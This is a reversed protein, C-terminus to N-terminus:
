ASRSLFDRLSSVILDPEDELLWHGAEPLALVQSRPLRKKLRYLFEPTFVFDKLGWILLCPKDRLKGLGRDIARLTERSPHGASLPIDSIFDAVGQRHLPRAYPARFGERVRPSLPRLTARSRLGGAFLDLKEALLRGWFPFATFLRLRWPLRAGEPLATGTNMLVLSKVREPHRLAWGLAIPGGWDHAALTLPGEPLLRELFAELHAIRDKLRLPSLTRSSLGMGPQDYALLRRSDRLGAVVKRYMFSWSPNGHLLVLAEGRGEDLYHTLGEPFELYRSRFPYELRWPGEPIRPVGLPRARAAPDPGEERNTETM